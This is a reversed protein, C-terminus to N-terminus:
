DRGSHPVDRFPIDRDAAYERPMGLVRESIINRQMENSGGGLSLAQRWLSTEGINRAPEASDAPWTAAADGAIQLLIETRRMGTTAAALKLISGSAPSMTGTAM